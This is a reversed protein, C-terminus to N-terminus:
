RLTIPDTNSELIPKDDNNFGRLIQANALEPVLSRADDDLRILGREFIQMLSTATVIKTM